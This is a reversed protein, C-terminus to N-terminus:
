KRANRRFLVFKMQGIRIAVDLIEPTNGMEFNLKTM